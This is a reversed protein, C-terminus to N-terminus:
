SAEEAPGAEGPVTLRFGVGRATIIWAPDDLKRRLAAVHADLTKTPGFFHPDWVTDMIQQRSHVAGPDDALYALLDFERPSLAIERGELRVQRTRRDIELPGLRQPAATPAPPPAESAPAHAAWPLAQQAGTRRTVARIRAVLERVGFPKALYDDAGLELGV